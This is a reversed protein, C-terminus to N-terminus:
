LLSIQINEGFERIFDRKLKERINQNFKKPCHSKMQGNIFVHLYDFDELQELKYENSSFQVGDYTGLFIGQKEGWKVQDITEKTLGYIEFKM